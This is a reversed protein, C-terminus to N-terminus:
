LEMTLLLDNCASRTWGSTLQHSLDPRWGATAVVDPHAGRGNNGHHCVMKSSFECLKSHFLCMLTHHLRFAGLGPHLVLEGFTTSRHSCWPASHDGVRDVIARDSYRSQGTHRHKLTQRQEWHENTSTVSKKFTIPRSKIM